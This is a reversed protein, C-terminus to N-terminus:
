ADARSAQSLAAVSGTAGATRIPWASKATPQGLLSEPRMGQSLSQRYNRKKEGSFKQTKKASQGLQETGSIKNLNRRRKGHRRRGHGYPCETWQWECRLGNGLIIEPFWSEGRPMYLSAVSHNACRQHENGTRGPPATAYPLMRAM